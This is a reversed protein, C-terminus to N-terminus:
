VPTFVRRKEICFDISIPLGKIEDTGRFNSHIGFRRTM